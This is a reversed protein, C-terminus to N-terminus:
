SWQPTTTVDADTNRSGTAAATQSETLTSPSSGGGRRSEFRREHGTGGATDGPLSSSCRYWGIRPGLQRYGSSLANCPTAASLYFARSAPRADIVQSHAANV